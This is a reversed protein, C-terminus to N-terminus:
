RGSRELIGEAKNVVMQLEDLILEAETKIPYIKPLDRWEVQKMALLTTFPISKVNAICKWESNSIVRYIDDRNKVCRQNYCDTWMLGLENAIEDVRKESGSFCVLGDNYEQKFKKIDFNLDILKTTTEELNEKTVLFVEKGRILEYYPQLLEMRDKVTLVIDNNGICRVKDGVKFKWEM